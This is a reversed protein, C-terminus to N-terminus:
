KFSMLHKPELITINRGSVTILGEDSLDRLIRSFHEPTLNLRSAIVSKSAPLELKYGQESLDEKLLYGIVRQSGNRLSYAEVDSMLRYLRQSLSAIMKKSISPDKDMLAFLNEKPIHLFLSEEIVVATVIYPKDMFMLAEGFSGGSSILRVVKEDGLPSRMVLKVRGYVLYHFGMCPQGQKFLIHGRKAKEHTTASAIDNIEAKSLGQFIPLKALFEHANINLNSM